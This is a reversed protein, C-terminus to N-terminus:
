FAKIGFIEGDTRFFEMDEKQRVIGIGFSVNDDFVGSKSNFLIYFSNNEFACESNLPTRKTKYEPSKESYQKIYIQFLIIILYILSLM